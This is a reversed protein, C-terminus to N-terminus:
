SGTHNQCVGGTHPARAEAQRPVGQDQPQEVPQPCRQVAAPDQWAAEPRVEEAAASHPADSCVQRGDRVAPSVGSLM